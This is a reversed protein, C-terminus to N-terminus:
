IAFADLDISLQVEDVRVVFSFYVNLSIHKAKDYVLRLYWHHKHKPLNHCSDKQLLRVLLNTKDEVYTHGRSVHHSVSSSNM